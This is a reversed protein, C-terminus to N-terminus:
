GTLRLALRPTVNKVVKTHRLGPDLGHGGTGRLLGLSQTHLVYWAEEPSLTEPETFLELCQELTANNSETIIVVGTIALESAAHKLTINQNRWYCLLYSFTCM